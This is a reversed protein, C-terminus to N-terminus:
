FDMNLIFFLNHFLFTFIERGERCKFKWISITDIPQLASAKDKYTFSM